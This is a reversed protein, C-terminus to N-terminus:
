LQQLEEVPAKQREAVDEAAMRELVERSGHRADHDTAHQHPAGQSFRRPGCRRANTHAGLVGQLTRPTPRLRPGM